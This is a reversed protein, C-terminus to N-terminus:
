THASQTGLQYCLLPEVNAIYRSGHSLRCASFVIVIHIILFLQLSQSQSNGHSVTPYHFQLPHLKEKLIFFSRMSISM